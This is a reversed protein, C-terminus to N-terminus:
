KKKYTTFEFYELYEEIGIILSSIYEFFIISYWVFLLTYNIVILLPQCDSM